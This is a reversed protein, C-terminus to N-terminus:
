TAQELIITGILTQSYASSLGKATAQTTLWTRTAANNVEYIVPGLFWGAVYVDIQREETFEATYNIDNVVIGVLEGNANHNFSTGNKFILEGRKWNITQNATIPIKIGITSPQTSRSLINRPVDYIDVKQPMQKGEM